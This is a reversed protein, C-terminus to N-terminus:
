RSSPMAVEGEGSVLGFAGRADRETGIVAVRGRRHLSTVHVGYDTRLYDLARAQRVSVAEESGPGFVTTADPCVVLEFGRAFADYSTHRVCCDTHQGVLVLRRVDHAVLREELGSETFASYFRKGVVM